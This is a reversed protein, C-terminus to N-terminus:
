VYLDLPWLCFDAPAPPSTNKPGGPMFTPARRSELHGPRNPRTSPDTDGSATQRGTQTLTVPKQEHCAGSLHPPPPAFAPHKGSHCPCRPAQLLGLAFPRPREGRCPGLPEGDALQRGGNAQGGGPHIACISAPPYGGASFRRGAPSRGWTCTATFRTRTRLTISRMAPSRASSARARRTSSRSPAAMRGSRHASCRRRAAGAPGRTGPM